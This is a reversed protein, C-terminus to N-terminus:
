VNLVSHVSLCHLRCSINGEKDSLSLLKYWLSCLDIDKLRWQSLSFQTKRYFMNLIYSSVMFKSLFICAILFKFQNVTYLMTSLILFNDIHLKLLSTMWSFRTRAFLVCQHIITLLLYHNIFTMNWSYYIMRHKHFYPRVFYFHRDVTIEWHPIKYYCTFYTVLNMRNLAGVGIISGRPSKEIRLIFLGGGGM